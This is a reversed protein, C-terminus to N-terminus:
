FVNIGYATMFTNIRSSVNAIDTNTLSGGLFAASFQDSTFAASTVGFISFASNDVGTPTSAATTPAAGNLSGGVTTGTTTCVWFGQSNGGGFNLLSGGNVQCAEHSFVPQFNLRSPQSNIAGMPTDNETTNSTLNYLGFSASNLTFNPSTATSPTFGTNVKFTSADGTFGVHASFNVTGSTTGSFSNQVLNLLATTQDPAAFIYLADMKAFTGDTVMGCILTDYNTKDATLTIGTARALFASSQSCSPTFGGGAPADRAARNDFMGPPFAQLPSQASALSCVGLAISALAILFTLLKRM